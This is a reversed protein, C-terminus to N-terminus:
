NKPDSLVSMLQDTYLKSSISGSYKASRLVFRSPLNGGPKDNCNALVVTINSNGGSPFTFESRPQDPLFLWAQLKEDLVGPCVRGQTVKYDIKITIQQRRAVSFAPSIMQYGHQTDNGEVSFGEPQKKASIGGKLDINWKDFQPLPIMQDKVALRTSIIPYASAESVAAGPSTDFQSLFILGGGHRHVLYVTKDGAMYPASDFDPGLEGMTQRADRQSNVTLMRPVATDPGSKVHIEFLYVGASLDASLSRSAIAQAPKSSYGVHFIQAPVSTTSLKLPTGLRDSWKSNKSDYYRAVPVCAESLEPIPCRNRPAGIDKPARVYVRTSGYPVAQTISTLIYRHKPFLENVKRLRSPTGSLVNILSDRNEPYGWVLVDPSLNPRVSESAKSALTLAEVFQVLQIRGPNEIGYMITGWGHSGRPLDSLFQDVYSAIPVWTSAIKSKQSTNVAMPKLILLSFYGVTVLIVLPSLCASLNRYQNVWLMSVFTLAAATWFALVQNLIAYGAHYNPYFALSVMYGTWIILPPVLHSNILIRLPGPILRQFICILWSVCLVATLAFRTTPPLYSYASDLHKQIVHVPGIDDASITRVFNRYDALTTLHDLIRFGFSAYFILAGILGGIVLLGIHKLIQKPITRSRWASWLHPSNTALLIFASAPILSWAILHTLAASSAFFGSGIWWRGHRANVALGSCIVTALAFFTVMIDPRVMPWQAIQFCHLVGIAFVTAAVYSKDKRFWFYAVIVSGLIVVLHISRLLSLSYGFVWTFFAGLYFYWPGYNFFGDHRPLSNPAQLPSSLFGYRGSDAIAYSINALGDDVALYPYAGIYNAFDKVILIAYFLILGVLIWRFIKTLVSFYIEVTRAIEMPKNAVPQRM